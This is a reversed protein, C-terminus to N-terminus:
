AARTNFILVGHKNAYHAVIMVTHLIKDVRRWIGSTSETIKCFENEFLTTRM